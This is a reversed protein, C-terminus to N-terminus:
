SNLKRPFYAHSKGPFFGFICPIRNKDKQQSILFAGKQLRIRNREALSIFFDQFCKRSVFMKAVKALQVTEEIIMHVLRSKIQCKVRKFSDPNGTKISTVFGFILVLILYGRINCLLSFIMLCLTPSNFRASYSPLTALAQRM